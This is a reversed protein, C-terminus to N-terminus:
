PAFQERLVRSALGEDADFLLTLSVLPDEAIDIQQADGIEYSDASAGVPRKDADLNRISV